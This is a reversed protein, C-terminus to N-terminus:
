REELDIVTSLVAIRNRLAQAVDLPPDNDIVGGDIYEMRRKRLVAKLEPLVNSQWHKSNKSKDIRCDHPSLLKQFSKFRTCEPHLLDFGNKKIPLLAYMSM